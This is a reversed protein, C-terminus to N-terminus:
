FLLTPDNVTEEAGSKKVESNEEITEDIPKAWGIAKVKPKEETM